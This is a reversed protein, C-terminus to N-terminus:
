QGYWAIGEHKWNRDKLVSVENEDLTYHHAGSTLDKNFLRQIPKSGGSYWAIGEDVWKHQSTLTSVENKDTTYHHDKLEPNYLRYVPTGTSPTYWAIGEYEGWGIKVLNDREDISATYFHEKNTPNYLRYMPQVSSESVTITMSVAVEEVELVVNLKNLEENFKQAQTGEGSPFGFTIETTGARHATWNGEEDFSLISPDAVTMAFSYKSDNLPSNQPRRIQGKEGVVLQEKISGPEYESGGYSRYSIKQDIDIVTTSNETTTSQAIEMTTEDDAHVMQHNLSLGVGVVLLSSLTTKLFTRM